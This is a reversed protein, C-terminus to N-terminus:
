RAVVDAVLGCGASLGLDAAGKRVDQSIGGSVSVKRRMSRATKLLSEILQFFTIDVGQVGSIDIELEGSELLAAHLAARLEEAHRVTFEGALTMRGVDGPRSAAIEGM